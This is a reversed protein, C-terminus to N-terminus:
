CSHSLSFTLFATAWHLNTKAATLEAHNYKIVYLSISVKLCCVPSSAYILTVHKYKPFTHLEVPVASACHNLHQVLFRFTAPEIGTQTSCHYPSTTNQAFKALSLSLLFQLPTSGYSHFTSTRGCTHAVLLVGGHAARIGPTGSYRCEVYM